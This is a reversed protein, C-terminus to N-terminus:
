PFSNSVNVGMTLNTTINVRERLGSIKKGRVSLGVLRSGYLEQSAGWITRNTEPLSLMCFVITNGPRADLERPLHVRVKSNSVAGDSKAEKESAHIELGKFSGKPKYWTAVMHDPISMDEVEELIQELNMLAKIIGSRNGNKM